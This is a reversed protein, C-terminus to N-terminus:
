RGDIETSGNLSVSCDGQRLKAIITNGDREVTMEYVNERNDVTFTARRNRKDPRTERVTIIHVNETWVGNADHYAISQEILRVSAPQAYLLGTLFVAQLILHTIRKMLTSDTMRKVSPFRRRTEIRVPYM